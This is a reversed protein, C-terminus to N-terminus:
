CLGRKKKQPLTSVKMDLMFWWLFSKIFLVFYNPQNIICYLSYESLRCAAKIEADSLFFYVSMKIFIRFCNHCQKIMMKACCWNRTFTALVFILFSNSLMFTRPSCQEILTNEQKKYLNPDSSFLIYVYQEALFRVSVSFFLLIM